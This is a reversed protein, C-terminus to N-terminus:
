QLFSGPDPEFLNDPNLILVLGGNRRVSGRVFEPPWPAGKPPLPEVEVPDIEMVEDVGDTLLALRLPEAGHDLNLVVIRGDDGDRPPMCLRRRVDIMPVVAGRVNVLWPAMAAAKPVRTRPITHIVEHVYRVPIALQEGNLRIILSMEPGDQLDATQTM